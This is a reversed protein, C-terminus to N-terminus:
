PLDDVHTRTGSPTIGALEIKEPGHYGSTYDVHTRTGSPTISAIEVKERANPNFFPTINEPTFSQVFGVVAGGQEGTLNGNAPIYEVTVTGQPYKMQDPYALKIQILNDPTASEEITIGSVTPTASTDTTALTARIWLYKGTLEGEPINNILQGNAQALWTEPAEGTTVATEITVSTGTPTDVTWKIRLDNPLDSLDVTPLTYTGSTNYDSAYRTWGTGTITANNNGAKDILTSGSTERCPWYAVLNTENGTLLKDKNNDIEAATRETKWIRIERIDGRVSQSGLADGITASGDLTPFATTVEVTNILSGDVYFKVYGNTAGVKQKVVWAIHYETGRTLSFGSEKWLSNHDWYSLYYGTANRKLHFSIKSSGAGIELLGEHRSPATGTLKVVAEVTVVDGLGANQLASNAAVAASDEDISLGRDNHLIAEDDLALGEATGNIFDAEAYEIVPRYNVSEVTYETEVNDGDPVYSPENATVVFADTNASIDESIVPMDFTVNITYNDIGEAGTPVPAPIESPVLGTPTFTITFSEASTVGSSLAGATYTITCDEPANNFDQFELLLWNKDKGEPRSANLGSYTTGSTGAITFDAAAFNYVDDRFQIMVFRGYNGIGDDINYALLAEPANIGYKVGDSTIGALEVKEDDSKNTRHTVDNLEAEVKTRLLEVREWNSMSIAISRFYLATTAGTNDKVLFIIRWDAVRSITVEVANAPAQTVTIGNSWAGNFYQAYFVTGISTTWAVLLGYGWENEISNIGMTASCSTVNNGLETTTTEDDWYQAHLTGSADVWFIWPYEDTTYFEIRKKYPKFRGEFAISIEVADPITLELAWSQPADIGDFGGSYIKAAGNDIGAVYIRNPMRRYDPRAVAISARGTFNAVQSTQWMKYDKIPIAHRSIIAELRPDANNAKNQTLLRCKNKLSDPISRM